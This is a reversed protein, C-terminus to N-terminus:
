SAVAAVVKRRVLLVGKGDYQATQFVAGGSRGIGSTTSVRVPLGGAVRYVERYGPEDIVIWRARPLPNIWGFAVVARGRRDFCIDLRPDSVRGHELNWGSSGCWPAQVLHARPNRDCGTITRGPTPFTITRGNVGIREVVLTEGSLRGDHPCAGVLQMVHKAAAV